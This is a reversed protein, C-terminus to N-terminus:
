AATFAGGGGRGGRGLLAGIHLVNWVQLVSEPSIEGDDFFYDIGMLSRCSIFFLSLPSVPSTLSQIKRGTALSSLQFLALCCSLLCSFLLADCEGGIWDCGTLLRMEIREKCYFVVVIFPLYESLVSHIILWENHSVFLLNAEAFRYYVSLVDVDSNWVLCLFLPLPSFFYECFTVQNSDFRWIGWCQALCKTKYKM